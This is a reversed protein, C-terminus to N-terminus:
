ELSCCDIFFLHSLRVTELAANFGDLGCLPRRLCMWPGGVLASKTDLSPELIKTIVPINKKSTRIQNFQGNAVTFAGNLAGGSASAM